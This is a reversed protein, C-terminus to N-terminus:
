AAGGKAKAANECNTCVTPECPTASVEYGMFSALKQLQLAHVLCAPVDNGPWHVIFTAIGNATDSM